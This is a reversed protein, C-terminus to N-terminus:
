DFNLEKAIRNIEKELAKEPLECIFNHKASCDHGTYGYNFLSPNFSLRLCRGDGKIEPFKDSATATENKNSQNLVKGPIKNTNETKEVGLSTM